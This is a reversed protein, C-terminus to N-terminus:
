LYRYNELFDEINDQSSRGRQDDTFKINMRNTELSFIRNHNQNSNSHILLNNQQFGVDKHSIKIFRRM